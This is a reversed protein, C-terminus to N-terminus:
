SKFFSTKPLYYINHNQAVKVAVVMEPTSVVYRPHPLSFAVADDPEHTM